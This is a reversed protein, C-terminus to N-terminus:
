ADTFVVAVESWWVTDCSSRYPTGEQLGPNVPNPASWAPDRLIRALTSHGLPIM